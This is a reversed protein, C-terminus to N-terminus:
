FDGAQLGAVAAGLHEMAQGAPQRRAADDGHDAGVASAFGGQQVRQHAHQGGFALDNKVPGLCRRRVSSSRTISPMARTGSFRSSNWWTPPLCGPAPRSDGSAGAAVGVPAVLHVGHVLTKRAQALPAICAAPVMDPPSRWISATPRASIDDGV